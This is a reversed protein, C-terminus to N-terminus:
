TRSAPLEDTVAVSRLVADRLPGGPRGHYDVDVAVVPQVRCVRSRAARPRELRELVSRLRARETPNLGFRVGGAYRLRGDDDRRSVLLEDPERRDGPRWATITLRERHRHKHKRWAESRRRSQYPANLRKAVVGELHRDRTVTVLDEDVAFARPTRWAPGELALSELLARRERYPLQRTSRGALHLLDFVILTAPAVLRAASVAGGTRARLRSRLREFDPLGEHDFCVLEGDLLVEDDLTDALARLEAFQATCDRGVRSRVTVRWGDFRLQARMGDWKVELAWDDDTPVENATTLLMPSIFDPLREVVAVLNRCPDRGAGVESRKSVQSGRETRQSRSSVSRLRAQKDRLAITLV